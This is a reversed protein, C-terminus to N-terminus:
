HSANMRDALKKAAKFSAVRIINGSSGTAWERGAFRTAGWHCKGAGNSAPRWVSDTM